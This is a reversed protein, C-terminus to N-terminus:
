AVTSKETFILMEPPSKLSWQVCCRRLSLPSTPQTHTHNAPNFGGHIAAHPSATKSRPRSRLLPTFPTPTATGSCFRQGDTHPVALTLTLTSPSIRDM